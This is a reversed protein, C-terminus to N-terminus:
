ATVEQTKPLEKTTVKAVPARRRWKKGRFYLEEGAAYALNMMIQRPCDAETYEKGSVDFAKYIINGEADKEKKVSLTKYEPQVKTAKEKKAM